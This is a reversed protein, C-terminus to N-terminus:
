STGHCYSAPSLGAKRPPTYRAGLGAENGEAARTEDPMPSPHQPAGSLSVPFPHQSPCQPCWGARQLPQRVPQRTSKSSLFSSCLNALLRPSPTQKDDHAARLLRLIPPVKPQAHCAGKGLCLLESSLSLAEKTAATRSGAPMAPGWKEGTGSAELQQRSSQATGEM